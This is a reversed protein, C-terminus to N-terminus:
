SFVRGQEGGGVRERGERGVWRKAGGERTGDMRISGEWTEDTIQMGRSDEGRDWEDTEEAIGDM